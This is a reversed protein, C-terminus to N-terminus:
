GARVEFLGLAAIAAGGFACGVVFLMAMVIRSYTAPPMRELRALGHTEREAIASSADPDDRRRKPPEAPVGSSVVRVRGPKQDRSM